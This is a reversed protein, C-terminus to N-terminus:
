QGEQVGLFLTPFSLWNEFTTRLFSVWYDKTIECGTLLLIIFYFLIAFLCKCYAPIDEQCQHFPLAKSM